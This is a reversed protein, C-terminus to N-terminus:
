RREIVRGGKRMGEREGERDRHSKHTSCTAILRNLQPHTGPVYCQCIGDNFLSERGPFKNNGTLQHMIPNQINFFIIKSIVHRLAATKLCYGMM